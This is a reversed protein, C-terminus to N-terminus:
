LVGVGVVMWPVQYELYKQVQFKGTEERERGFKHHYSHSTRYSIM